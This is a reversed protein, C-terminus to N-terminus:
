VPFSVSEPFVIPYQADSPFIKSGVFLDVFMMEGGLGMKIM